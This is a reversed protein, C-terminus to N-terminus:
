VDYRDGSEDIVSQLTVSEYTGTTTVLDYRSAPPTDPEVDMLVEPIESRTMMGAVYLMWPHFTVMFTGTAPDQVDETTFHTEDIKRWPRGYLVTFTPSELGIDFHYGGEEMRNAFVGWQHGFVEHLLLHMKSDMFDYTDPLNRIDDVLGVGRLRGASGWFSSVDYPTIGLGAVGTRVTLHRSGLIKDPYAEYIALFDFVDPHDTYLYNAIAESVFTYWMTIGDMLGYVPGPPTLVIVPYTVDVYGREYTSTHFQNVLAAKIDNIRDLYGQFESSTVDADEPALLVFGVKYARRIMPHVEVTDFDLGCGESAQHPVGIEPYLVDRCNAGFTFTGPTDVGLVWTHSASYAGNGSMIHAKDWASIGTTGYWWFMDIGALARASVTINIVGGVSTVSPSVDINVYPNCLLALIWPPLLFVRIIATYESNPNRADDKYWFMWDSEIDKESFQKVWVPGDTKTSFTPRGTLRQSQIGTSFPLCFEEIKELQPEESEKLFIGSPGVAKPVSLRVIGPQKVPIRIPTWEGKKSKFEQLHRELLNQKKELVWLEKGRDIGSKVMTRSFAECSDMEKSFGGVIHTLPVKKRVPVKRKKGETRWDVPTRVQRLRLDIRRGRIKGEGSYRLTTGSTYEITRSATVSTNDEGNGLLEVSGRYSGEADKGKISYSFLTSALSSDTEEMTDGLKVYIIKGTRAARVYTHVKNFYWM